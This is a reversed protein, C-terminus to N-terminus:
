FDFPSRLEDPGDRSPLLYRTDFRNFVREDVSAANGM